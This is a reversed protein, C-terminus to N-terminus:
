NHELYLLNLFYIKPKGSTHSQSLKYLHSELEADSLMWWEEKFDGLVLHLSVKGIKEFLYILFTSEKSELEYKSRETKM